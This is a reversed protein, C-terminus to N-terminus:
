KTAWYHRIGIEGFDGGKLGLRDPSVLVPIFTMRLQLDDFLWWRVTAGGRWIVAEDRRPIVIAEGVVGLSLGDVSPIPFSYGLQQRCAWRGHIVAPLSELYTARGSPASAVRIPESESHIEGFGVPVDLTLEASWAVYSARQGDIILEVDRRDYSDQVPLFSRRFSYFYLAGARLEVISHEFHVGGYAGTSATSLIPNADLGGWFSHPQGYGTSVRPRLYAFGADTKTSVFWRSDGESWPEARAANARLVVAFAVAVALGRM